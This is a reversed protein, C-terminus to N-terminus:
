NFNLNKIRGYNIYKVRIKVYNKSTILQSYLEPKM